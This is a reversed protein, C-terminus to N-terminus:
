KWKAKKNKKSKKRDKKANKKKKNSKGKNEKRLSEIRYEQDKQKQSKPNNDYEPSSKKDASIAVPNKEVVATSLEKDASLVAGSASAEARVNAIPTEAIKPKEINSKTNAEEKSSENKLEEMRTDNLTVGEPLLLKILEIKVEESMTSFDIESLLSYNPARMNTPEAVAKRKFINVSEEVVEGNRVHSQKTCNFTDSNELKAFRRVSDKKLITLTTLLGLLTNIKVSSAKPDADRLSWTHRKGNANTFVSVIKYQEGDLEEITTTKEHLYKKYASVSSNFAHYEKKDKYLHNVVKDWDGSKFYPRFLPAYDRLRDTPAGFLLVEHIIEKFVGSFDLVCLANRILMIIGYEIMTETDQTAEYWKSLKKALNDPKMSLIQRETLQQTPM